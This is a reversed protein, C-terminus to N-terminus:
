RVDVFTDYSTASLASRSYLIASLQKKNINEFRFYFLHFILWLKIEVFLFSQAVLCCLIRKKKHYFYKAAKIKQAISDPNFSMSRYLVSWLHFKNFRLNISLPFHKRFPSVVKVNIQVVKVCIRYITCQSIGVICCSIWTYTM